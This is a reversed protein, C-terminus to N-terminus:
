TKTTNSKLAHIRGSILKRETTTRALKKAKQYHMEAHEPNITQYLEGLLVHYFHNQEMNLKEAEPIAAAYGYVKAYAYIRNLAAFPSDNLTLLQNYLTLIHEWKEPTDEKQTYWWAICAELHYASLENGQAAEKLHWAGYSILSTDWLTQDQQEYFIFTGDSSKRARLRSAQFCMLSYLAHVNPLRTKSNELLLETLRMAELCLEERIIVDNNESYYGESFLLYLTTLVSNLRKPIEHEHPFELKWESERLKNRARQLRKNITENNTLFASAIEPIGFGCLIRLALGTQAETPIEPHCVTFLMQLMSDSITQESFDISNEQELINQWEPLIKESFVRNRQLYNKTKNKAVTYLWATPNEPVGKYPWTDLASIFTESVLDEAIELNKIGFIKSLVSCMKSFETRFLHPILEHEQM